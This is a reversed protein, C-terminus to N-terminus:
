LAQYFHVGLSPTISSLTTGPVEGRRVGFEFALGIGGLLVEYGVGGYASAGRSTVATGALPKLEVAFIGLRTFLWPTETWPFLKGEAGLHTLRIREAASPPNEGRQGFTALIPSIAAAVFWQMPREYGLDITNSLGAYHLPGADGTKLEIWEYHERARIRWKPESALSSARAEPGFSAVSAVIAIAGPLQRAWARSSRVAQQGQDLM